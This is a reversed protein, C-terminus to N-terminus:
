DKTPLVHTLYHVSLMAYGAIDLLTDEIAEGVLDDVDNLELQRLRNIKDEFRIFMGPAGYTDVVKDFSNGYNVNKSVLIEVFEENSVSLYKLLRRIYRDFLFILWTSLTSGDRYLFKKPDELDGYEGQLFGQLNYMMDYIERETYAVDANDTEAKLAEEVNTKFQLQEATLKTTDM